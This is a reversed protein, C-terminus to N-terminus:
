SWAVPRTPKSLKHWMRVEQNIDNVRFRIYCQLFQGSNQLIRMAHAYLFPDSACGSEVSVKGGLLRWKGNEFAGDIEICREVYGLEVGLLREVSDADVLTAEGTTRDKLWYVQM